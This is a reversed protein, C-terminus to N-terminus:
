GASPNFPEDPIDHATAEKEIGETEEIQECVEMLRKSLSAMDRAPVGADIMSAIQNRLAVLTAYKGQTVADSLREPAELGVDPRKRGAM